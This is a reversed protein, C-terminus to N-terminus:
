SIQILTANLQLFQQNTIHKKKKKVIDMAKLISITSKIMSLLLSAQSLPIHLITHHTSCALHSPRKLDQHKSQDLTVSAEVEDGSPAKRIQVIVLRLEHKCILWGPRMKRGVRRSSSDM